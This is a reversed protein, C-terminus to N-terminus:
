DTDLVLMPSLVDSSKGDSVTTTTKHCLLGNLGDEEM